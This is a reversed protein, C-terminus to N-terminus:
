SHVTGHFTVQSKRGVFGVLEELKQREAGNGFIHLEFFRGLLLLSRILQDVRKIPDLRGIFGVSVRQQESPSEPWARRPIRSFREADVANPITVIKDSSIFAENHSKEAVSPSPVVVKEARLQVISQLWWHWRPRPQ